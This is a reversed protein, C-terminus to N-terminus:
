PRDREPEHPGSTHGHSPTVRDSEVVDDAVDHPETAGETVSRGTEPHQATAPADHVTRLTPHAALLAEDLPQGTREDTWYTGNDLRALATEVDRLEQDIATLDPDTDM